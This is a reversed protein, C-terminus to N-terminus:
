DKKTGKIYVVVAFGVAIMLSGVLYPALWEVWSKQEREEESPLPAATDGLASVKLNKFALISNLPYSMLIGMEGTGQSDPTAINQLLTNNMEYLKANTENKSIAAEIRYWKNRTATDSANMYAARSEGLLRTIQSIQQDELVSISASYDAEGDQRLIFGLQNSEVPMSIVQEESIVVTMMQRTRPFYVVREVKPILVDFTPTGTDHESIVMFEGSLLLGTGSVNSKLVYKPRQSVINWFQATVEGDASYEEPIPEYVGAFVTLKESDAGAYDATGGVSTVMTYKGAQTFNWILSYQGYEDTVTRYKEFALGERGVYMTVNKNALAPNVEGTIALSRNEGDLSSNDLSFTASISPLALQSDLSSAVRAPSTKEADQLTIARPKTNELLGPLDGVNWRGRSTCEAMWYTKNDYEFGAPALWWSRYVPKYPLYVGVNMHSPNLGKYYLLVVDLGGAKMISAALLSLVDCDGSNEVLAEVPYKITSKVYPIQQVVDLVANAFQEDSYPEGNTTKRINEAIVSFAEPTVFKAYNGDGSLFHTKREYYDYLSPPISVHINHESKFHGYYVDYTYIADYNQPSLGENRGVVVESLSTGSSSTVVLGLAIALLLTSPFRRKM